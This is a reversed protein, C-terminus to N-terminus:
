GAMVGAKADAGALPAAPPTVFYRQVFLVGAAAAICGAAVMFAVRPSAAEAILGGMMSGTSYGLGLIAPTLAAHRGVPDFVPSLTPVLIGTLTWFGVFVMASVAFSTPTLPLALAAAGLACGAIVARSWGFLSHRAMAKVLFSVGLSALTSVTLVQGIYARDLGNSEALPALFTWIVGVGAYCIYLTLMTLYIGVKNVEGSRFAAPITEGRAFLLMAPLCVLGVSAVFFFAGSAQWRGTLVPLILGMLAMAYLNQCVVMFGINRQPERSYALFGIASASVVGNGLGAFLGGVIAPQLGLGLAILSNGGVMAVMGLALIRRMPWGRIGKAVALAGLTNGATDASVVFGIQAHGFGWQQAMFAVLLPTSLFFTFAVCGLAVMMAIFAPSQPRGLPGQHPLVASSM